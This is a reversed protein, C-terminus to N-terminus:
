ELIESVQRRSTVYYPIEKSIRDQPDTKYHIPNALRKVKRTREDQHIDFIIDDYEDCVICHEPLLPSDSTGLFVVFLRRQVEPTKGRIFVGTELFSSTGPFEIDEGQVVDRILDYLKNVRAKDVISRKSLSILLEM